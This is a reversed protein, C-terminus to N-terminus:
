YYCCHLYDEVEKNAVLQNCSIGDLICCEPLKNMRIAGATVEALTKAGALVQSNIMARWKRYNYSVNHAAAALKLLLAHPGLSESNVGVISILFTPPSSM